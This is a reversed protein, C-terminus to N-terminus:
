FPSSFEVAMISVFSVAVVYRGLLEEIEKALEAGDALDSLADGVRGLSRGKHDILIDDVGLM